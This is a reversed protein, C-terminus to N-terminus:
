RNGDTLQKLIRGSAEMQREAMSKPSVVKILVRLDDSTGEPISFNGESFVPEQRSSLTDVSHMVDLNVYCDVIGGCDFSVDTTFNYTYRRDLNFHTVDGNAELDELLIIVCSYFEFTKGGNESKYICTEVQPDYKYRDVESTTKLYLDYTTTVDEQEFVADEISAPEFQLKAGKGIMNARASSFVATVLMATLFAAM